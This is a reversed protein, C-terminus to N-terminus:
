SHHFITVYLSWSIVVDVQNSPVLITVFYMMYMQLTKIWKVSFSMNPLAIGHCLVNPVFIVFSSFYYLPPEKPKQNNLKKRLIWYLSTKKMIRLFEDQNVEGDGDRDAEDIM